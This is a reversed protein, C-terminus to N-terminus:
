SIIREFIKKAADGNGFINSKSISINIMSYIMSDIENFNEKKCIKNYGFKILEVWETEERIVICPVKSFFAEKQIGGSDTIIISSKKQLMLMDLYGIPEIFQIGKKTCENMLNKGLIKKTRPHIPFIIKYEHRIKVLNNFLIKLNGVDNTNEARHITLLCFKTENLNLIDIIKSRKKALDYFINVADLMIDGSFIIKKQDINEKLLNKNAEKTPTFLLSSLHDTMIRNQEEAMKMNFSRLGAEIHSVPINIKSAAIAGALTSNTDGYVIVVDPKEIFLTKEIKEIMRGTQKGHTFSGIGLNYHPQAMELEDFFIHSMNRSYHQGTHVLIEHINNKSFKKSLPAAKIFQPRAGIITLVKM